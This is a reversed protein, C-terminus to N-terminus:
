RIKSLLFLGLFIFIFIPLLVAYIPSFGYILSSPGLLKQTFQFVIGVIIGIFIRYGMTASRLPGFVFSIAILVLSIVVLPHFCKEWFALEYKLANLGQLKLYEIHDYLGKISLQDPSMSINSLLQPTLETNWKKTLFSTKKINNSFHTISVDELLWINNQYSARNATTSRTLNKFNDFDLITVGYLVGGPQVVNFHMFSEDERHWLGSETLFLSDKGSMKLDKHSSAWQDTSPTIFESILLSILILLLTPKLILWILTYLSIGCSRIIIIENTSILLGVSIMCGILSAIPLFECISGPIKLFVYILAEYLNYENRFDEIQDILASLIDLSLILFLVLLISSIVQRNIYNRVLVM